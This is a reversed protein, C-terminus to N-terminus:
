SLLKELKELSIWEVLYDDSNGYYEYCTNESSSVHSKIKKYLAYSIDPKVIELIEGLLTFEEDYEEKYYSPRNDNWCNGGKYGGINVRRYIVWDKTNVDIFSPEKYIGQDWGDFKEKLEKILEETFIM